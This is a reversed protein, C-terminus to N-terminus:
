VDMKTQSLVLAQLREAMLLTLMTLSLRFIVGQM